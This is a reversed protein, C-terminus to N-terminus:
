TINESLFTIAHGNLYQKSHLLQSLDVCNDPPLTNHNYCSASSLDININIKSEILDM